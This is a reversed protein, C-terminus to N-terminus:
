SLETLWEALGAGIADPADEPLFHLGPVTVERQNPWRRCLERLPGTLLAGPEGNIFLKPVDTRAMWAPNEAVIRHVDGPFGDIPIERAWTLTPRRSEGPEAYPARYVDLEDAGYERMTGAPLIREVFFNEELVLREGDPGRLRDFVAPDPANPSDSSVPAVLTELYAIGRVASEHTRAWDVALVGGWDHGVLVVRGTVGLAALAAALFHRHEVYRYRGPGSDPLKASAGMGVLDLAICRGMAALHPVVNRWLYSSTPNGHLFVIPDGAGVERYAISCGDVSVRGPRGMGNNM